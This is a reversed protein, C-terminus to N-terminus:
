RADHEAEHSWQDLSLTVFRSDHPALDKAVFVGGSLIGLERHEYLDRVHVSRSGNLAIDIDGLSVRVSIPASANSLVFVAFSSPSLPKTWVQHEATAEVRRGASGAYTQSVAIVERNTITPWVRDLLSTDSADFGLILPASAIVWAGFHSRDESANALRGVELMDPYAWAGPRSTNADLFKVTTALNALMSGWRANIDGSTRYFNYSGRATSPPPAAAAHTYWRVLPARVPSGANPVPSQARACPCDDSSGDFNCHGNTADYPVFGAQATKLYCKAIPAHPTTDASEFCLAACTADATCTAECTAFSTNILAPQADHGASLYGLRHTYSSGAKQFTQWQKSGPDLGGQHGTNCSLM